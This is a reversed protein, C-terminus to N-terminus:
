VLDVQIHEGTQTSMWQLIEGTPLVFTGQYNFNVDVENLVYELIFNRNNPSTIPESPNYITVTSGSPPNYVTYKCTTLGLGWCDITYADVGDDDVSHGEKVTKYFNKREDRDITMFGFASITFLPLLLTLILKKM